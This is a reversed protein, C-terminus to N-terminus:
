QGFVPYEGSFHAKVDKRVDAMWAYGRLGVNRSPRGERPLITLMGDTSLENRGRVCRVNREFWLEAVKEGNALVDYGSIRSPDPRVAVKVKATM